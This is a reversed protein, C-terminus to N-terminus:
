NHISTSVQKVKGKASVMVGMLDYSTNMGSTVFPIDKGTNDVARYLTSGDERVYTLVHYKNLPDQKASTITAYDQSSWQWAHWQAEIHTHLTGGHQVNDKSLEYNANIQDARSYSVQATSRSANKYDATDVVSATSTSNQPDHGLAKIMEHNTEKRLEEHTALLTKTDFVIKNYSNNM